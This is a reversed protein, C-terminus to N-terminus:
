DGGGTGPEPELDYLSLDFYLIQNGKKFPICGSKSASINFGGGWWHYGAVEGLTNADSTATANVLEIEPEATNTGVLNRTFYRWMLKKDDILKKNEDMVKLQEATHYVVKMEKMSFMKEYLLNFKDNPIPDLQKQYLAEPILFHSHGMDPFILADVYGREFAKEVQRQITKIFADPIKVNGGRDPSFPFVLTKLASDYYVRKALRKESSYIDNAKSKIEDLSMGWKFDNSYVPVEGAKDATCRTLDLKTQAFASVSFFLCLVLHYKKTYIKM